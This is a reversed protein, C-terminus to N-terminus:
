RRKSKRRKKRRRKTKRKKSKRKTRKKSKRKKRKTKRKKRRRRGGTVAAARQQWEPYQEHAQLKKLIEKRMSDFEQEKTWDIGSHGNKLINEVQNITIKNEDLLHALDDVLNVGLEKKAQEQGHKKVYRDYGMGYYGTDFAGRASLKEIEADTLETM